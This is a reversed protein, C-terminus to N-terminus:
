NSTGSASAISGAALSVTTSGSALAQTNDAINIAGHKAGNYLVAGRTVTSSFKARNVTGRTVSGRGKTKGTTTVSGSPDLTIYDTGDTGSPKTTTVGFNTQSNSSVATGSVSPTVVPTTTISVEGAGATM